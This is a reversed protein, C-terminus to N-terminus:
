TLKGDIRKKKSEINYGIAPLYEKLKNWSMIRNTNHNNKDLEPVSM